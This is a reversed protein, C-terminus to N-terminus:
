SYQVSKKHEQKELNMTTSFFSLFEILQSIKSGVINNDKVPM